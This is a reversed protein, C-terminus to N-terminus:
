IGNLAESLELIELFLIASISTMVVILAGGLKIVKQNTDIQCTKISSDTAGFPLFIIGLIIIGIMAIITQEDIASLNIVSTKLNDILGQYGYILEKLTGEQHLELLSKLEAFM